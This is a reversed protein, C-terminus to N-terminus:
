CSYVGTPKTCGGALYWDSCGSPGCIRQMLGCTDNCYCQLYTPDASAETRPAAMM